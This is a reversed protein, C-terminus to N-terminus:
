LSTNGSLLNFKVLLGGGPMEDIDTNQGLNTMKPTIQGSEMVMVIVARCGKDSKVWLGGSYLM